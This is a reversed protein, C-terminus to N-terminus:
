DVYPVSALQVRYLTRLGDHVGKVLMETATVYLPPGLVLSGAPARFVRKRGDALDYLEIRPQLGSNRYQAYIGDGVTRPAREDMNRVLRRTLDIPTSAHVSTWLELRAYAGDPQRDYGELWAMTTGDTGFGKVDGGAALLLPSTTGGFSGHVVSVNSGWDEWFVDRGVVVINQPIGPADPDRAGSLWREEGGELVLIAGQPQLELAVTTDSVGITQVSNSGALIDGRLVRIPETAAGVESLLGHFVRSEIPTGDGPLWVEFAVSTASVSSGMAAVACLNGSDIEPGRWAAVPAGETAALVVIRGLGIRPGVLLEFYGREGDHAGIADDFARTFRADDTLFECGEGCSEWVPTFVTEPHEAREIVCGDTLGPLPIWGAEPVAGDQRDGPRDRLDQQEIRRDESRTDRAGDIENRDTPTDIGSDVGGVGDDSSCAVLLQSALVAQRTLFM